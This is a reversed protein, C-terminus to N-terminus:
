RRLLTETATNKWSFGSEERQLGCLPPHKLLGSQGPLLHFRVAIQPSSHLNDMETNVLLGYTISIQVNDDRHRSTNKFIGKWFNSMGM